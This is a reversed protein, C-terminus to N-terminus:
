VEKADETGEANPEETYDVEQNLAEHTHDEGTTNGFMCAAVDATMDAIRDAVKATMYSDVALKLDASNQGWSYALIDEVNSM